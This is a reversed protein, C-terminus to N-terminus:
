SLAGAAPRGANGWGHASRRRPWAEGAGALVQALQGLSALNHVPLFHDVHPLAAVLGRTLPEYGPSGLLPNLWILRGCSRALRAAERSLLEPDGRDWGDGILLVVAGRGLVRRAWVYNFSKLAEGMRTGGGWDAVAAAAQRLALDPDRERLQRTLRTLRTGFAFVEPRSAGRALVHLFQLLLRSYLRMSGSVDCLAVLPRPKVKRKLHALRLPEGGTRLSLRLVRRLDVQPGRRSAVRRRTRRPELPLSEELMLRRVERHEEPTLEAFSKHRLRERDSWAAVREVATAGPDPTAGAAGPAPGPLAAALRPRLSQGRAAMRGLDVPPAGPAAGARWFLDFARDFVELHERRHVLVTRAAAKFRGRDGLDVLELARTLTGLHDPTVELGLRRLLRGFRLLNGLLEGKM